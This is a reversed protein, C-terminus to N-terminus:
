PRESGGWHFVNNGKFSLCIHSPQQLWSNLTKSKKHSRVLPRVCHLDMTSQKSKIQEYSGEEGVKVFLMTDYIKVQSEERNFM